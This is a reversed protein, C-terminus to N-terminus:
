IKALAPPQPAFAALAAQLFLPAADAGSQM